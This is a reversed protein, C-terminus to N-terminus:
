QAQRFHECTLSLAGLCVLRLYMKGLLLSIHRARGCKMAIDVEPLIYIYIYIINLHGSGLVCGSRLFVRCGVIGATNLV